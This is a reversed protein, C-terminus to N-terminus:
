LDAPPAPIPGLCHAQPSGWVAVNFPASSNGGIANLKLQDAGSINANITKAQGTGQTGFTQTQLGAAGTTDIWFYGANGAEAQGHMGIWARFGTCRGGLWYSVRMATGGAFQRVSRSYDTSGIPYDGFDGDINTGTLINGVVSQWAWVRYGYSPTATSRTRKTTAAYVRYQQVGMADAKARVSFRATSRVRATGVTKWASGIKRQLRVTKGRLARSATGTVTITSGLEIDSKSRSVIRLKVRKKAKATSAIAGTAPGATPTM